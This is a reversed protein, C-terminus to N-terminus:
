APKLCDKLAARAAPIAAQATAVNNAAASTSNRANLDAAATAGAAANAAARLRDAATVVLEFGTLLLTYDGSPTYGVLAARITDEVTKSATAVAAADHQAAAREVAGVANKVTTREDTTASIYNLAADASFAASVAADLVKQADQAPRAALVATQYAAQATIVRDQADLYNYFQANCNAPTTAAPATAPIALAILSAAATTAAARALTRPHV